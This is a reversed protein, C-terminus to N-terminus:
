AEDLIRQVDDICTRCTALVKLTDTCANAGQRDGNSGAIVALGAICRFLDSTLTESKLIPIVALVSDEPTQFEFERKVWERAENNNQKPM